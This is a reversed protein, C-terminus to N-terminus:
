GARLTAETARWPLAWGSSSPLASATLLLLLPLLLLPLGATVLKLSVM